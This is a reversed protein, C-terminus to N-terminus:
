TIRQFLYPMFRSQLGLLSNHEKKKHNQCIYIQEKNTSLIDELDVNSSIHNNCCETNYTFLFDGEKIKLPNNCKSCFFHKMM